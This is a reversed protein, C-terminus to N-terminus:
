VTRRQFILINKIDIEEVKYIEFSGISLTILLSDITRGPKEVASGHCFTIAAAFFLIGIRM